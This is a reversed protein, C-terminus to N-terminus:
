TARTAGLAGDWVLRGLRGSSVGRVLVNQIILVYTPVYSPALIYIGM